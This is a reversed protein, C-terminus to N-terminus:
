LYPWVGDGSQDTSHDVVVRLITIVKGLVTVCWKWCPWSSKSSGRKDFNFTMHWMANTVDYQEQWIGKQCQMECHPQWLTVNWKYCQMQWIVSHYLVNQFFFALFFTKEFISKKWILNKNFINDFGLTVWSLEFCGLLLKTSTLCPLWKSGVGGLVVWFKEPVEPGALSSCNPM